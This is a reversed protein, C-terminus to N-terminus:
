QLVGSGKFFSEPSINLLIIRIEGRFDSNCASFRFICASCRLHPDFIVELDSGFRWPLHGFLNETRRCFLAKFGRQIWNVNTLAEIDEKRGHPFGMIHVESGARPRDQVHCSASRCFPPAFEASAWSRPGASSSLSRMPKTEFAPACGM